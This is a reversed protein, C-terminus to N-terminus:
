RLVMMNKLNKLSKELEELTGTCTEEKSAYKGYKELFLSRQKLPQQEMKM